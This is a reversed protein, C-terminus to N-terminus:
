LDLFNSALLLPLAHEPTVQKFEPIVQSGNYRLKFYMYQCVKELIETTIEPFKIEGLETETFSGQSSLMNKITKSVCAAERDVIFEFGEASILKVTEGGGM